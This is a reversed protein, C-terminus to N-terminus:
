RCLFASSARRLHTSAPPKPTSRPSTQPKSKTLWTDFQPWTLVTEYKVELVEAPMPPTETLGERAPLTAAAEPGDIEGLWTRFQYRTYLERLAATDRETTTLSAPGALQAPRV